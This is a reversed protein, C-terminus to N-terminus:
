SPQAATENGLDLRQRLGSLIQEQEVLDHRIRERKIRALEYRLEPLYADLAQRLAAAEKDTLVVTM